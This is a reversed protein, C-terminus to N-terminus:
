TDPQSSTIPLTSIHLPPCNRERRPGSPDIGQGNRCPTDVIRCPRCGRECAFKKQRSWRTSSAPWWRPPGRGGGMEDGAKVELLEANALIIGLQNNLRHFLLGLDTPDYPEWLMSPVRLSREQGARVGQSTQRWLTDVFIPVSGGATRVYEVKRQAIWNYITRRSVGVLECAKM